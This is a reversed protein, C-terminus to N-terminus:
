CLVLANVFTCEHASKDSQASGCKLGVMRCIWPLMWKADRCQKFLLVIQLICYMSRGFYSFCLLSMNNFRSLWSSLAPHCANVLSGLFIHWTDHATSHKYKELVEFRLRSLHSSIQLRLRLFHSSNLFPDSLEEKFIFVICIVDYVKSNKYIYIYM